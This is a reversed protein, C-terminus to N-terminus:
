LPWDVKRADDCLLPVLPLAPRSIPFHGNLRLTLTTGASLVLLNRFCKMTSPFLQWAQFTLQLFHSFSSSSSSCSSCGDGISTKPLSLVASSGVKAGIETSLPGRSEPGCRPLKEAGVPKLDDGSAQDNQIGEQHQSLENQVQLDNLRVLGVTQWQLLAAMKVKKIIAIKKLINTKQKSNKWQLNSIKSEMM